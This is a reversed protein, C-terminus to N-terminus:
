DVARPELRDEAPEELARDLGATRLKVTGLSPSTLPLLAQLAHLAHRRPTGLDANVLM